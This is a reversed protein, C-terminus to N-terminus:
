SWLTFSSLETIFDYEFILLKSSGYTILDQFKSFQLNKNKNKNKSILRNKASCLWDSWKWTTLISYDFFYLIKLEKHMRNGKHKIINIYFLKKETNTLSHPFFSHKVEYKIRNAVRGLPFYIYASPSHICLRVTHPLSELHYFRDNFKVRLSHHSQFKKKTNNIEPFQESSESHTTIM